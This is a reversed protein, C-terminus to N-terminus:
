RAARARLSADWVFRRAADQWRALVSDSDLLPIELRLGAIFSAALAPQDFWARVQRERVTSVVVLRGGVVHTGDDPLDLASDTTFRVVDVDSFPGADGRAHSGMLALALVGPQHGFTRALAYRM